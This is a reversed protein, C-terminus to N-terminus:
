DKLKSNWYYIYKKYAAKDTIYNVQHPSRIKYAKISKINENYAKHLRHNGDICNYKQPSIEAIIIPKSIICQKLYDVNINDSLGHEKFWLEVNLDIVEPKLLKSEIDILIKTINFEFIGNRYLEDEDGIEFPTFKPSYKIKKTM